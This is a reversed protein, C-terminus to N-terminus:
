HVVIRTPLLKRGDPLTAQLMYIGPKVGRDDLNLMDIEQLGQEDIDIGETLIPNGGLDYLIFLTKGKVQNQIIVNLPGDTPNPFIKLSDGVVPAVVDTVSVDTDISQDLSDVPNSVTTSDNDGARRAWSWIYWNVNRKGKKNLFDNILNVPEDTTIFRCNWSLLFNWDGRKDDTDNPWGSPDHYFIDRLTYTGSWDNKWFRDGGADPLANFCVLTKGNRNAEDVIDKHIGGHQKYDVEVAIFYPKNRYNKYTQLCDLKRYMNTTFVPIFKFNYAYYELKNFGTWHGDKWLRLDNELQGPDQGYITANLKFIVWDYAPTGWANAKRKVVEWCARTAAKDKIDLAVVIAINKERIYDLAQELTPLHFQSLNGWGNHDYLQLKQLDGSTYWNVPPNQHGFVQRVNTCRGLTQDHSLVPVGDSSLKIDLEVMEIGVDFARQIAPLSNEPVWGERWYGRHACVAVLDNKPHRLYNIIYNVNKVQAHLDSGLVVLLVLSLLFRSM